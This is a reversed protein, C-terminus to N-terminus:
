IRQYWERAQCEKLFESNERSFRLQNFYHLVTDGPARLLYLMWAEPLPNQGISRYQDIVFNAVEDEYVISSLANYAGVDAVLVGSLKKAGVINDARDGALMQAWFFKPGHGTLKKTSTDTKLGVSGFGCPEFVRGSALDHYPYPTMRLDKDESSIVGNIGHSYAEIIMGDDAELERHLICRFEPLWNERFEMAERLPELLSPKDKGNRNGQYPKVGLMRFRHNKLSDSSTLHVSGFESKTLYMRTIVATQFRKIATDLRKVTAAAVYAPGDGDLILTRGPTYGEFTSPVTSLDLGFDPLSLQAAKKRSQSGCVCTSGLFIASQVM